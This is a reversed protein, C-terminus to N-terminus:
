EYEECCCCVKVNKHGHKNLQAQLGHSNGHTWSDGFCLVTPTASVARTVLEKNKALAGLMNPDSIDNNNSNNTCLTPVLCLPLIVKLSSWKWM